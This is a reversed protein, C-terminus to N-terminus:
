QEYFQVMNSRLDWTLSVLNVLTFLQSSLKRGNTSQAVLTFKDTATTPQYSFRQTRSPSVTGLIMQGGNANVMFVTVQDVPIFNNVVTVEVKPSLNVEGVPQKKSCAALALVTITAAILRKM